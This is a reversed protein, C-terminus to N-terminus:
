GMDKRSGFRGQNGNLCSASLRVKEALHKTGLEPISAKLDEIKEQRRLEQYGLIAAATLVGAVLATASFQLAPSSSTRAILSSM